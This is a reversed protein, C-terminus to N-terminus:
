RPLARAQRRRSAVMFEARHQALLSRQAAVSLSGDFPAYKAVFSRIVEDEEAPTPTLDLM